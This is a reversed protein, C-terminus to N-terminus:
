ITLEVFVCVCVCVYRPDFVSIMGWFLLQSKNDGQVPKSRGEVVMAM